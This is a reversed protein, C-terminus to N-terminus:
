NINKEIGILAADKAQEFISDTYDTYAKYDELAGKYNQQREKISTSAFYFNAM